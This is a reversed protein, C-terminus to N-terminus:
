AENLNKACGSDIVIEMNSSFKTINHSIQRHKEHELVKRIKKSGKKWIQFFTDLSV